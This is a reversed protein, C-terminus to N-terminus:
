DKPLDLRSLDRAGDVIRVIQVGVEDIRYIVLWCQIVLARANPGFDPRAPGSQPFAALQLCRSTIRRIRDDAISPNEAYISRHIGLLDSRACETYRLLM